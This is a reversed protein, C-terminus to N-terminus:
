SNDLIERVKKPLLDETFPKRIFHAGSELVGHRAIIDDTYGSMYVVKVGPNLIRIEKIMDKVNMGPMIVDTLVLHIVDKYERYIKLAEDGNSAYVITYGYEKLIKGSLKRVNDEDEVVLITEKGFVSRKEVVSDKKVTSEANEAVIPLYIRATTGKDPESDIFIYGGSQKVIGYVVSLGLGTGKGREKTTFFPEFVRARVERTMGIGTDSMSFLVYRGPVVYPYLLTFDSDLIVNKTEIIIRGGDSMADRANVTLNILIQEMQIPDAKIMQMLPQLVTELKINEGILKRLMKKSNDIIKNLDLVEPQITQRRSFTLLQSILTTARVAAENIEKIDELWSSDSPVERLLIDVYGRIVTLYNNFDHAVGGALQGVSEMKQVQFLQTQIKNKEEELRKHETVDRIVEIASKIIGSHDRMPYVGGELYLLEGDKDYYKYFSVQAEGTNFTKRMACEINAEWCPKDINYFAEYCHMGVIDEIRKNVMRGYAKNASIIKYSRDVVILGDTISELIDRMFGEAQRRETIDRSNIIGARVYPNNTLNKGVSELIRWSGDKHRFRHEIKVLGESGSMLESLKAIILKSEDPYLFDFEFLSKDILEEPKYGLIREISNSAYLITGDARLVVIIDTSNQILAEFYKESRRLSEESKKQVSIDRIVTVRANRGEYPISNGHVEGPFTTGDKRLGVAEYPKEYRSRINKMVFNRSEPAAFDLVNMGIVEKLEYGFMKAYALNADLIKGEAHIAIGEMTAESLRRFRFESELLDIETKKRETIDRAVCFWGLFNGKRNLSSAISLDVSKTTGSKCKIEVGFLDRSAKGRNSEFYKTVKERSDSMLLRAFPKGIVDRSKYGLIGIRSNVYIFNGAADLSFVVDNINEFIQNYQHQLKELEMMKEELKIIPRENYLNSFKPEKNGRNKSLVM